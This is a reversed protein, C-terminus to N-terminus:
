TLGFHVTSLCSFVTHPESAKNQFANRNQYPVLSFCRRQNCCQKVSTELSRLPTKIHLPSAFCANTKSLSSWFVLLFTLKRDLGAPLRTATLYAIKKWCNLCDCVSDSSLTFSDKRPLPLIGTELRQISGCYTTHSLHWGSWGFLMAALLFVEWRGSPSKKSPVPSCPDCWLFCSDQLPKLWQPPLTLAFSLFLVRLNCPTHPLRAILNPHRAM